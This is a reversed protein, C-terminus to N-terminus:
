KHTIRITPTLTKKYCIDPMAQTIIKGELSFEQLKELNITKVTMIELTDQDVQTSVWDYLAQDDFSFKEGIFFTVGPVKVGLSKCRKLLKQVYEKVAEKKKTATKVEKDANIYQELKTSPM